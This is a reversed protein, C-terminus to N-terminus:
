DGGLLGKLLDGAKNRLFEEGAKKLLDGIDPFANLLRVRPKGLEGETELEALLRGDRFWTEEVESVLAPRLEDPLHDIGRGIQNHLKESLQEEAIIEVRGAHTSQEAQIWAGPLFGVEWDKFWVSIPEQLTFRELHYRVAVRGSRGFTAREPLDEIELGIAELKQLASWGKEIVPIHANLYAGDALDLDALLDLNLDGTRTDFFTGSAEGSLPLDAYRLPEELADIVVRGDLRVRATNSAELAAPDLDIEDLRVGLDQVAVVMGTKEVEVHLTAQALRVDKLRALFGHAYVNLSRTNLVEDGDEDIRRVGKGAAAAEGNEELESLKRKGGPAQLLDDLSTGGDEHLRITLDAGDILFESIEVRRQLLAALNVALRVERARLPAAELDRREALAKGVEEDRPALAVDRLTIVAPWRLLSLEASGVHLRSNIQQEAMRVLEDRSVYQRAWASLGVVVGFALVVLVSLFM